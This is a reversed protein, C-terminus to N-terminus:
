GRFSKNAKPRWFYDLQFSELVFRNKLYFRLAKLNEPETKVGLTWGAKQSARQFSKKVLLAGIGQGQARPPVAILDIWLKKNQADKKLSVFGLIKKQGAVWVEDAYNVANKAWASYIKQAAGSKLGQEHYFRGEQFAINAIKKLQPIDSKQITRLAPNYTVPFFDAANPKQSLAVLGGSYCFGIRELVQVFYHNSMPIRVAVSSVKKKKFVQPLFRSAQELDKKCRGAAWKLGWRSERLISSEWEREFLCFAAALSPSFWGWISQPAHTPSFDGHKEGCQKLFPQIGKSTKSVKVLM